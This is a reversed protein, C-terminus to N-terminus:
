PAGGPLTFAGAAPKGGSSKEDPNVLAVETGDALGDVAAQSENVGRVHVDRPLFSKGSRVYVVTKGAKRFVAQRPVLMVGKMQGSLITLRVTFGPRLRPDAHDLEFTANFTQESDSSFFDDSSASAAVEKVTAHLPVGSLADVQVDVPQGAKLNSRDSERIKASIEMQGSDLVEAIGNGPSVQDGDRYDPITMGPAFFGGSARQNGRVRVFGELTARVKMSDINRQAEEIALQAKHRKEETVALAAQSSAAHSHADQELQALVRKAEELKLVNKKGDIASVLENGSVDLEAQRVDFRAKLLAVQDQAALVAADAKAKAIEQEAQAVDSHAQALNYEQESPDFEVVVDGAKVRTGSPLVHLIQLSGGGIPPAILMTSRKARMEGTAYANLNLSGRVVEAVPLGPGDAAVGRLSVRAAVIGAAPVLVIILWRITRKLSM